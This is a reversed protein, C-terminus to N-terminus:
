RTQLRVEKLRAELPAKDPCSQLFSQTVKNQETVWAQTEADDPNELWSYPDDVQTGFYEDTKMVRKTSPYSLSVAAAAMISFHRRPHLPVIPRTHVRHLTHTLLRRLLMLSHSSGLLDEM